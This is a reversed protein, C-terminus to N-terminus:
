EKDGEDFKRWKEIEDDIFEGRVHTLHEKDVSV